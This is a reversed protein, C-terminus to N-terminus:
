SRAILGLLERIQENSGALTHLEQFFASPDSQMAELISTGDKSESDLIDLEKGCMQSSLMLQVNISPDAELVNKPLARLYHLADSYRRQSMLIRAMPIYIEWIPHNPSGVYRAEALKLCQMAKEVYDEDSSFGESGFREQYLQALEVLLSHSDEVGLSIAWLYMSELKKFSDIELTTREEIEGVYESPPNDILVRRYARVLDSIQDSSVCGLGRDLLSVAMAREHLINAHYIAGFVWYRWYYQAENLQSLRTWLNKAIESDKYLSYSDQLLDCLLDINDPHEKLGENTIMRSERWCRLRSAEASLNFWIDSPGTYRYVEQAFEKILQRGRAPNKFSLGNVEDYFDMLERDRYRLDTSEEWLLMKSVTNQALRGADWHERIGALVSESDSRKYTQELRLMLEDFDKANQYEEPTSVVKHYLWEAQNEDDDEFYSALQRSLERFKNQDSDWLRQLILRRTSEHINHGREGFREVFSLTQLESYLETTQAVFKPCLVALVEKNFWHPVAAAWVMEQLEPSLANILNETLLWNRVEPTANMLLEILENNM